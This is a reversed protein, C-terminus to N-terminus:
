RPSVIILKTLTEPFQFLFTLWLFCRCVRQLMTDSASAVSGSRHVVIFGQLGRDPRSTCLSQFAEFSFFLSLLLSIPTRSPFWAMTLSGLESSAVFLLFVQDNLASKHAQIFCVGIRTQFHITVLCQPPLVSVFIGPFLSNLQPFLQPNSALARFFYFPIRLLFCSLM